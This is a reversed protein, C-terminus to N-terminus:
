SFFDLNRIDVYIEDSFANAFRAYSYYLFIETPVLYLHIETENYNKENSIALSAMFNLGM